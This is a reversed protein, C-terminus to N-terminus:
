SEDLGYYAKYYHTSKRKNEPPPTMYDGYIRSLVADFDGPAAFKEGEFELM